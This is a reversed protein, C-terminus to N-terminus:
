SSHEIRTTHSLLKVTALKVFCQRVSSVTPRVGVDVESPRRPQTTSAAQSTTAAAEEEEDEEQKQEFCSAPALLCQCFSCGPVLLVLCPPPLLLVLCPLPVLLVLCPPPSLSLSLCLSFVLCPPAQRGSGPPPDAAM